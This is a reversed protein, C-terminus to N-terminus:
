IIQELIIANEDSYIEKYGYCVIEDVKNLCEISTSEVMIKDKPIIIYKIQLQLARNFFSQHNFHLNNQKEYYEFAKFSVMNYEDIQNFLFQYPVLVRENKDPLKSLL